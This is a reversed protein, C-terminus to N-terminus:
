LINVNQDSDNCNKIFVGSIERSSSKGCSRNVM